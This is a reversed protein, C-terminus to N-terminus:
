PCALNVRQRLSNFRSLLVGPCAPSPTREFPIPKREGKQDAKTRGLQVTVKRDREWRFDDTKLQCIEGPRLMLRMGLSVIAADRVEEFTAPSLEVFRHLASLPFPDRERPWQKSEAAIRTAGEAAMVVHRHETPDPLEADLHAAKIAAVAGKASTGKGANTLATLYEIITLHAAPLHPLSLPLCFLRFREFSSAYLRNTSPARAAAIM